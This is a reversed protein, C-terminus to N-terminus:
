SPRRPQSRHPRAAPPESMPRPCPVACRLLCVHAAAPLSLPAAETTSSPVNLPRRSSCHRWGTASARSRAMQHEDGLPPGTEDGGDCGPTVTAAAMALLSGHRARRGGLAAGSQVCVCVCVCCVASVNVGVDVGGPRAQFLLAAHGGSHLKTPTHSRRDQGTTALALGQRSGRAAQLTGRGRWVVMALGRWPVQQGTVTERRWGM